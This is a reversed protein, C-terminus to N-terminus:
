GCDLIYDYGARIINHIYGHQDCYDHHAAALRGYGTCCCSGGKGGPHAVAHMHLATHHTRPHTHM